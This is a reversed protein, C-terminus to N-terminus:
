THKMGGTSGGCVRVVHPIMESPNRAQMPEGLAELKWDDGARFVKAMLLGTYPMGGQLAYRALEVGTTHDVLRVFANVVNEFTQGEYSTVTFVITSVHVPVRTLDVLIVEDDGEGEGTRNDGLHQVSGDKTRLNNYFAIDVLETGAMLVASADLDIEVERRGFLGGRRIPDWGLGMRILTLRVGQDKTLTVKQGKSLSVPRSKTLRM